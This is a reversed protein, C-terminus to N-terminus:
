TSGDFNEIDQVLGGCVYVIKTFTVMLANSIVCASDGIHMDLSNLLQCLEDSGFRAIFDGNIGMWQQGHPRRSHSSLLTNLTPFFLPVANRLLIIGNKM